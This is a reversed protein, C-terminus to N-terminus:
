IRGSRRLRRNVARHYHKALFTKILPLKLIYAVPKLWLTRQMLVIYADIERVIQGDKTQIHLESLALKPDIGLRCLENDKDTIDFWDVSEGRKGSLREYRKRDRLCSPCAGDYFVTIKDQESKKM